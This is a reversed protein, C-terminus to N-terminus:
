VAPKEVNDVTVAAKAQRVAKEREYHKGFVDLRTKSISKVGDVGTM